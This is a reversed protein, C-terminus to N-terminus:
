RAKWRTMDWLLVRQLGRGRRASYGLPRRGTVDPTVGYISSTIRSNLSRCPLNRVREVRKPMVAARAPIVQGVDLTTM